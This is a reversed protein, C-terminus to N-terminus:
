YIKQEINLLFKNNGKKLEYKLGNDLQLVIKLKWCQKKYNKELSREVNKKAKLVSEKFKKKMKYNQYNDQDM